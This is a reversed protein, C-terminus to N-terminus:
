PRMAIIATADGHSARLALDADDICKDFLVMLEFTSDDSPLHTMLRNRTARLHKICIELQVQLSPAIEILHADAKNPITIEGNFVSLVPDAYKDQTNDWLAMIPKAIDMGMMLDWQWKNTM